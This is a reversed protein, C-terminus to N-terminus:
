RTCEDHSLKDDQPLVLCSVPDCSESLSRRWRRGEVKAIGISGSGTRRQCSLDLGEVIRPSSAAAPRQRRRGRGRWCRVRISPAVATGASRRPITRAAELTMTRSPPKIGIENGAASASGRSSVSRVLPPSILLPPRSRRLMKSRVLVPSTLAM